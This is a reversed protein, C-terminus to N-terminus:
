RIIMIPSGTSVTDGVQVRLEVIEGSSEAKIENEMKMAELVCVAEGAEVSEGAKKHIKVITGQMPAAVVGEGSGGSAQKSLKPAKRRPAVRKGSGPASMVKAWYKVTFRRGGVEVTLDREALEEQEPLTPATSRELQSFDMGDEVLRTSVKGKRFRRNELIALHAPITTDVGGIDFEGLARKARRFVQERDKGTVILKAIMNDYYQSIESGQVVGSDVRIGPGGPERYHVLTGPNPVFGQSPDEANIRFEMAHGIPEPTETISLEAGLALRIQEAVLDVGFVEETVTHEVQIRTN